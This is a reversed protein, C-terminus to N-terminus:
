VLLNQHGGKHPECCLQRVQDLERPGKDELTFYINIRTVIFPHLCKRTNEAYESACLMEM